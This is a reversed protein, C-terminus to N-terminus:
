WIGPLLKYLVRSAYERYGPLEHHLVDDELVTRRILVVGLMLMPLESWWSGLALGSSLIFLLGAAYGPHRVYRYPGTQIVYQGRDPQIRVASSFFPNVLIPWASLCFGAGLGVLGAVQLGFPFNGSWHFRGADLGGIVWHSVQGMMLAPKSFRDQEGPGPRIRERILDPTRRAVMPTVVLSPILIVGMYWWFFPLDWRGAAGFLCAAMLCDYILIFTLGLLM